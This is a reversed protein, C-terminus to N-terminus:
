TRKCGNSTDQAVTLESQLTSVDPRLSNVDNSNAAGLGLAPVSASAPWDSQPGVSWRRGRPGRRRFKWSRSRGSSAAKISPRELMTLM